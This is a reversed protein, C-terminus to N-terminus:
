CLLKSFLSMKIQPSLTLASQRVGPRLAYRALKLAKANRKAWRAAEELMESAGARAQMTLWRATFENDFYSSFDDVLQRLSIVHIFKASLLCTYKGSYEAASCWHKSNM